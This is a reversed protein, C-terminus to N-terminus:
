YKRPLKRKRSSRPPTLLSTPKEPSHEDFVYSATPIPTSTFELKIRKTSALLETDQAIKDHVMQLMSEDARHQHMQYNDIMRRNSEEQSNSTSNSNNDDNDDDSNSIGDNSNDCFAQEVQETCQAQFHESVISAFPKLWQVCDIIDKLTFGSCQMLTTENTFHYLAAAALRSNPFALSHVDLLALDVLCVIKNFNPVIVLQPVLQVDTQWPCSRQRVMDAAVVTNNEKNSNSSYLQAYTSLWSSATIPTIQWRIASLIILEQELIEEATCAGDTFEAFEYVTPPHIEEFKSAIFICTTGILQMQLKHIDTQTTLYRDFFDIALHYTQKHLKCEQSVQSLWSFLISRYNPQITPHQLMMNVNRMKHYAGDKDM